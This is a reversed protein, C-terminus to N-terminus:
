KRESESERKSERAREKEKEREEKRHFIKKIKFDIKLTPKFMWKCCSLFM